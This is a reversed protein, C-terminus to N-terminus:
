IKEKPMKKSLGKRCDEEEITPPISHILLQVETRLLFCSFHTSHWSSTGTQRKGELPGCGTSRVERVRSGSIQLDNRLIPAFDDKGWDFSFRGQNVPVSSNLSIERIKYYTASFFM